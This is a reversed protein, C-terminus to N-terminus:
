TLDATAFGEEFWDYIPALVGVAEDDKGQRQLLAALSTAARLEFSRSKILWASAQADSFLKAARDEDPSDMSLLIEGEVRQVDAFCWREDTEEAIDRAHRIAVVAAEFKELRRYADALISYYFTWGMRSGTRAWEELGQEIMEIGQEINSRQVETWGLM